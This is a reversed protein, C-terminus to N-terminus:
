FIEDCGACFHPQYWIKVDVNETALINSPKIDRHIINSSHLYYIGKIIQYTIYKVHDDTLSQKSTIVRFLDIEM